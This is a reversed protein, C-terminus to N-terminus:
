SDALGAAAAAARAPMMAAAAVVVVDCSLIGSSAVPGGAWGCVVVVRVCLGPGCAGRGM